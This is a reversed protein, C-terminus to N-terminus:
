PTFPSDSGKRERKRLIQVVEISLVFGNLRIQLFLILGLFALLLIQLGYFIPLFQDTGGM